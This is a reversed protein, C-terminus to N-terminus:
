IAYLVTEDEFPSYHRLFLRYGPDLSLIYSPIDIIDEPKHYVCIALKPHQKRIVHQAGQLAALEAGEVDMKIFTVRKGELEEDISTM